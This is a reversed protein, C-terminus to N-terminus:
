NFLLKVLLLTRSGSLNKLYYRTIMAFPSRSKPLIEAAKATLSTILNEPKQTSNQHLKKAIQVYSYATALNKDYDQEAIKAAQEFIVCYTEDVHKALQGFSVPKDGEVIKQYADVVRLLQRYDVKSDALGQLVPHPRPPKGDIIEGIVDRWWQLKILGVMAESTELPIELVEQHFNFLAYLKGCLNKPAYTLALYTDYDKRKLEQQNADFSM